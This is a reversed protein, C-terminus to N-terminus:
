FVRYTGEGVARAVKRARATKKHARCIGDTRYRFHLFFHHPCVRKMQKEYTTCGWVILVAITCIACKLSAFSVM